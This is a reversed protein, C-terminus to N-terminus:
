RCDLEFLLACGPWGAGIRVFGMPGDRSFHVSPRKATEVPMGTLRGLEARLKNHRKFMLVRGRQKVFPLMQYYVSM